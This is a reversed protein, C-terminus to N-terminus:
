PNPRIPISGLVLKVRSTMSVIFAHTLAAFALPRDIARVPMLAAHGTGPRMLYSVDNRHPVWLAAALIGAILAGSTLALILAFHGFEAIMRPKKAM